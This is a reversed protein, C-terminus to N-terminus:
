SQHVIVETGRAALEAEVDGALFRQADENRALTADMHAVTLGRAFLHAQEGSCLETIPQMEKALWALEGTWSMKRVAEHLEEVDDMFHAHDARRLIVMHKSAPTREFLEYMGTLPLSVDN